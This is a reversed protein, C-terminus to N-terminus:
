APRRGTALDFADLMALTNLLGAAILFTTGYEYTARIVDGKGFDGLAAAARPLLLMWESLAALLALPGSWELPYLRGGFALGVTFMATLVVFLVAAKRTQGLLVHGAGPVLWAALCAIVVHSTDATRVSARDASAAGPSTKPAPRPAPRM